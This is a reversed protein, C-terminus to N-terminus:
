WNYKSQHPVRQSPHLQRIARRERGDSARHRSEPRQGIRAFRGGKQDAADRRDREQLQAEEGYAIAQGRGNANSSRGPAFRCRWRGGGRGNRGSGQDACWAATREKRVHNFTLQTSANFLSKQAYETYHDVITQFIGLRVGTYLSQRLMSATLGTYLGTIGDRKVISSAFQWTTVHERKAGGEGAVQMNLKLLDLPYCVMTGAVGSLSACLFKVPVPIRKSDIAM